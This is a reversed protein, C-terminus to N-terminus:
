GLLSKTVKVVFILCTFLTIMAIIILLFCVINDSLDLHSFLSFCRELCITENGQRISNCCKKVLSVNSPVIYNPDLQNTADKDIVIVLDVLPKVLYSLFQLKDNIISSATSSTSQTDSSSFLKLMWDSSYELPHILLEIPLMFVVSMMNYMDHVIGATMAIEFNEKKKYVILSVVTNTVSTGLNAGMIIPISQRVNLVGSGVITVLVSTVAGSSQFIVTTIVGVMLGILPNQLFGSTRIFHGAYHYSTLNFAQSLISSSWMFFYITSFIALLKLGVVLNSERGQKKMFELGQIDSVNSFGNAGGTEICNLTTSVGDAARSPSWEFGGGNGISQGDLQNGPSKIVMSKSKGNLLKMNSVQQQQNNNNTDIILNEVRLLSNLKRRLSNNSIERDSSYKIEFKDASDGAGRSSVNIDGDFNDDDDDIYSVDNARGIIPTKDFRNNNSASQNTQNSALTTTTTSNSLIGAPLISNNDSSNKQLLNTNSKATEVYRHSGSARQEDDEDNNFDKMMMM